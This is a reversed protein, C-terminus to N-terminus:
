AQCKKQIRIFLSDILEKNTMIQHSSTIEWKDFEELGVKQKESGVNMFNSIELEDLFGSIM